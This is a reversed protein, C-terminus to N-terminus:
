ETCDVAAVLPMVWNWAAGFTVLSAPVVVWALVTALAAALVEAPLAALTACFAAVVAVVVVM